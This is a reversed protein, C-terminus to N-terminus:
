IRQFLILIAVLLLIVMFANWLYDPLLGTQMRRAWRGLANLAGAIGRVIGDILGGDLLSFLGSALRGVLGVLKVLGDLLDTDLALAVDALSSSLKGVGNVLWDFGSRDVVDAAAAGGGARGFGQGFAVVLADIIREDVRRCLDALRLSPQVTAALLLDEFHFQRSATRYVWTLHVKTLVRQLPDVGEQLGSTVRNYFWGGVLLGGLGFVLGLVLPQWAAIEMSVTEGVAEVLGRLSTEVFPTFWNPLLRGLIPFSHPIGLWGLSVAFLALIALPVLMVVRNERAYVAARSRPTGLFTLTIQRAVYFATLGAAVALCWFVFRNVGWAQALIEDKSWFGATVLPFGSLALGGALFTVATVPMRFALGGMKFMNNPSFALEREHLPVAHGPRRHHGHEIGHIVSGAALFLLAKFFAHTILHFLSAAYAGVGVAAVMYGLQSITSFALVRKIDHQTVAIISAYLATVTGVTAIVPLAESVALLPFARILLYVGASVMTAAHILASAPTPGEMADPLWIHLPLQASKGITGGFLLLVAVTAVSLSGLYPTAALQQVTEPAFVDVYSLSGVRVYLLVLGLLLFVDGVRTVMFAKLSARVASPKEWWFGILLYSCTGMMEWFIFLALLNDCVMAGLMSGAFLSVYAFFRSIRPDDRMYGVSYIFILLCVTTVMMVMVAATPDLYVGLDLTETGLAFWSVLPLWRVEPSRVMQWFVGQALVAAVAIGAIALSQSLRRHRHAGLTILLFALFPALPILWALDFM